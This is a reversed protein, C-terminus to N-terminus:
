FKIDRNINEIQHSMMRTREILEKYMSKLMNLVTSRFDKELLDLTQDEDPVIETLKKKRHTHAMSEQKKADKM